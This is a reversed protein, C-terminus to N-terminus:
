RQVLFIGESKECEGPREERGLGQDWMKEDGRVEKGAGGSVGERMRPLARYEPKENWIRKDCCGM